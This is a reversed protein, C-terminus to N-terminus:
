VHATGVEGVVVERVPLISIMHEGGFLDCVVEKLDM